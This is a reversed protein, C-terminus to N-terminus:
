KIEKQRNFMLLFLSSSKLGLTLLCTQWIGFLPILIISGLIGALCGGALDLGYLVGAASAASQKRSYLISALSFESGVLLGCILFLLVFLAESSRPVVGLMLIAILILSDLLILLDMGKKATNRLREMFMSGAAAAFMFIGIFLGIKQYLYGFCTQFAFILILASLMGFFGTTAVACKLPLKVDDKKKSAAALMLFILFIGAAIGAPNLQRARKFFLSFAPYLKKTTLELANFVAVPRLDRNEQGSLGRLSAFYYDLHEKKLKYNLHAQSLIEGAIARNIHRQWLTDATIQEIEPASSALYINREGPVVRVYGFAAKLPRLISNNLLALDPSIYAFSGNVWFALIGGPALNSKALNFFEGTFFRNTALDAQGSLGVLILDYLRSSNRLYFRADRYVLNLRPDGFEAQTLETPFAKVEKILAPDLEAYDLAEVPHKLVQRILGGAGGGAILVKKPHAHALLALGAFEESFAVDPDPSTIIPLGNYFFTYQGRQGSVVINGDVSNRADLINLGKWQRRLSNQELLDPGGSFYSLVVVLFLAALASKFYFAKQGFLLISLVINLAAVLFIVQFSSLYPFFFYTIAIGGLFTGITEWAYAKGASAFRRALNVFLAGHPISVPLLAIFSVCFMVPLGVAEGQALGLVDKFARAAYISLGFGAIFIFQLLLFGIEKEGPRDFYIGAIYVGLAELAMWLSLIIGLALENGSFGVWLERLLLVQAILGSFGVAIAIIASKRAM